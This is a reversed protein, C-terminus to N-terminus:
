FMNVSIMLPHLMQSEEKVHYNAKHLYKPELLLESHKLLDRQSDTRLFM